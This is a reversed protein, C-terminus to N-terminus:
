RCCKGSSWEYRIASYLLSGPSALTHGTQDTAHTELQAIADALKQKAGTKMVDGLRYTNQELFAEVNRLSQLM